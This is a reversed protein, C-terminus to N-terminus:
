RQVPYWYDDVIRRLSRRKLLPWLPMRFMHWDGHRDWKRTSVIAPAPTGVRIRQGRRRGCARLARFFAVDEAIDREEDYGGIEDFAERSCFVVGGEVRLPVTVLCRVLLRTAALGPSSREFRWGTAGGVCGGGRMSEDIVRFTDPHLVLDADAFALVRGQALAAGGNRVAGIRRKEVRVVRCGAARAISATADTSANDAVIVEVAARGGPHCERAREVSALLRPLLRAEDFAPVVLSIHPVANM